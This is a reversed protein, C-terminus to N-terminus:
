ANRGEIFMVGLTEPGCHNSIVGGARTIIVRDFRKLSLIEDETSRLLEYSVGSHVIFVADTDADLLRPKIDRMYRKIVADQKGRYKAGVGMKGDCVVIKPKIKLTSAAFATVAGCRGGRYLYVPTQVVFSARVMPIYKQLELWIEGATLDGAEVMEAAKLILLAIGTSLNQSDVVFVHERYDLNDAALSFNACSSSMYSSIGFFIIDDGAERAREIVAEADVPSFSCTKPTTGHEDSWRYIEDPVIEVGDKLYRDGMVVYLPLIEIRYRKILEPSLDGTSDSVLRIM